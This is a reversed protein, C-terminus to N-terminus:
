RHPSGSTSNIFDFGFRGKVCLSGYNPPEDAGTVKVV